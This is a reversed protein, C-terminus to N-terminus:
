GWAKRAKEGVEEITKWDFKIETKNYDSLTITIFGEEKDFKVQAEQSEGDVYAKVRMTKVM